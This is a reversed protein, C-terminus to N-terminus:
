IVINLIPVLVNVFGFIKLILDLGDFLLHVHHVTSLELGVNQLEELYGVVEDCVLVNLAELIVNLSHLCLYSVTIIINSGAFLYDLFNFLGHIIVVLSSLLFGIEKSGAHFFKLICNLTQLLVNTLKIGLVFIGGFSCGQVLVRGKCALNELVELFAEILQSAIM